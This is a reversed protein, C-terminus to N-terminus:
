TRKSLNVNLFIYHFCDSGTRQVDPTNRKLCLGGEEGMGPNKQFFLIFDDLM